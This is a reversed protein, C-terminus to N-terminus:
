KKYTQEKLVKTNTLAVKNNFAIFPYLIKFLVCKLFM